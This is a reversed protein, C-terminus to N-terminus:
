KVIYCARIQDNGKTDVYVIYNGVDYTDAANNNISFTETIEKTTFDSRLETVTITLENKNGNFKNVKATASPTAATGVVAWGTTETDYTKHPPATVKIKASATYFEGPVSVLNDSSDIYVDKTPTADPNITWDITIVHLANIKGHSTFYMNTQIHISSGDITYDLNDVMDGGAVQDDKHIIEVYLADKFIEGTDTQLQEAFIANMIADNVEWHAM